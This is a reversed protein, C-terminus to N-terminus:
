AALKGPMQFLAEEQRLFAEAKSALERRRLLDAEPMSREKYQESAMAILFLQNFTATPQGEESLISSLGKALHGAGNIKVGVLRDEQPHMLISVKESISKARYSCDENLFIAQDMRESYHAGPEFKGSLFYPSTSKKANGDKM